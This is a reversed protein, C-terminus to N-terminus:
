LLFYLKRRTFTVVSARSILVALLHRRTGYSPLPPSPVLAEKRQSFFVRVSFYPSVIFIPISISQPEKRAFSVSIGRSAFPIDKCANISSRSRLLRVRVKVMVALSAFMGGIPTFHSNGRRDFSSASASRIRFFSGGGGGSYQVKTSLESFIM